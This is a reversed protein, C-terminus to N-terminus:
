SSIVRSLLGQIRNVEDNIEDSYLDLCLSNLEDKKDWITYEKLTEESLRKIIKKMYRKKLLTSNYRLSKGDSNALRLLIHKPNIKRLSKINEIVDSLEYGFISYRKLILERM